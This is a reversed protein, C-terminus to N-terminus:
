KTRGRSTLSIMKGSEISLVRNAMRESQAESHTIWLMTVGSQNIKILAQEVIRISKRDLASTPEDLLLVEPVFLLSRILAIRQKEGGSLSEVDKELYDESMEFVGLLEQSRDLSFHQKHVLYPFNLNDKVTGTFLQPTQPVYLIQKRIDTPSRTHINEGNFYIQGTTPSVLNAIIKLLTSKGSGSPGTITMVEGKVVDFSLNSLIDTTNTSFSVSKLSLLSMYMNYVMATIYAIYPTAVSYIAYSTQKNNM